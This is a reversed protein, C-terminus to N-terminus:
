PTFYDQPMGLHYGQAYDVGLSKVVNLIEESEVYEAVTKIGLEQCLNVIHKVLTYNVSSNVINKIFSGDLKVYRFPLDKIYRFSNYGTGFDDLAFYFGMSNLHIITDKLADIDVIAEHELIEFIINNSSLGLELCLNQAFDLLHHNHMTQTSLNIFLSVYTGNLQAAQQKRLAQSIITENFLKSLGHKEISEVFEAASQIKGDLMHLRALVEYAMINNTKCDVIPQFFPVIRGEHLAMRLMEVTSQTDRISQLTNKESDFFYVTNKGTKKAQYLAVDAGAMMDSINKASSPYHMLGISVTTAFTQGNIETFELQSIKKRLIEAFGYGNAINTEVFLIAFEDGGIRAVVDSKRINTTMIDAIGKLVMDGCLHGYSDNIDKFDDLDLMAVIFEHQHREARGFEYSLIENFYHRNHIKTLSDHTSFFQLEKLNNGLTKSFNITMNIITLVTQLVSEEMTDLDDQPLYFIGFTNQLQSQQKDLSNLLKVQMRELNFVEAKQDGIDFQEIKSFHIKNLSAAEPSLQQTIKEILKENIEKKEKQLYQAGYYINLHASYNEKYAILFFQFPFIDHLAVSIKQFFVDCQTIDEHLSIIAKLIQAQKSILKKEIITKELQQSVANFRSTINILETTYQTSKQQQQQNLISLTKNIRECYFSLKGPLKADCEINEGKSVIFDVIEKILSSILATTNKRTINSFTHERLLASFEEIVELRMTEFHITDSTFLKSM